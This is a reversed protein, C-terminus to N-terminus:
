YGIRPENAKVDQADQAHATSRVFSKTSYNCYTLILLARVVLCSPFKVCKEIPAEELVLCNENWQTNKWPM